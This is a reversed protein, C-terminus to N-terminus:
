KRHKLLGRTRAAKKALPAIADVIGSHHFERRSPTPLVVFAPLM